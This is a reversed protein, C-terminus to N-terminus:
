ISSEIGDQNVGKELLTLYDSISWAVKQGNSTLEIGSILDPITEFQTDIESGLIDKIAAQQASPLDFCTRVIMPGSTLALRAEHLRRIFVNIMREELSTEALDTLTKRAIAFVEQQTRRVISQHLNAEDKKLTEQRKLTLAAAASQAEELLRKREAQAEETAKSLLAAREQDFKENKHKFEDSEKQAEAKKQEANTLETAIKKEREDIAHLIPQYLFHKMLWVLILFNCAQAIVTFWDILM